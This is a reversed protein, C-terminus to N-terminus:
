KSNEQTKDIKVKIYDTRIANSQFVTLLLETEKKFRGETIMYKM